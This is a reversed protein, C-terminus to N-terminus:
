FERTVSGVFRQVTNFVQVRNAELAPNYSKGLMIAVFQQGRRRREDARGKVGKERPVMYVEAQTAGEKQVSWKPRNKPNGRKMGSIKAMSLAEADKDIPKVAELLGTRMARVMNNGQLKLSRNLQQMGIMVVPEAAVPYVKAM